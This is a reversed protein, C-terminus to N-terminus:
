PQEPLFAPRGFNGPAAAQSWHNRLWLAAERAADLATLGKLRLGLWASALTCGTGRRDGPLRPHLDLPTVRERTIWFDQLTPGPTHGGKLWVAEAGLDLWPLALAWPDSTEAELLAQAESRNPSVIWGGSALVGRAMRGLAAASHLGVGSTPAMIPDWIRFAPGAEALARILSDLAVADLDCLGLKLGWTGRLHPRLAQLGLVPSLSPPSIELCAEGNQITEATCLAMPYVGLSSLVQVDRLLGAGGSPDLGGLCLAIPLPSPSSLTESMSAELM